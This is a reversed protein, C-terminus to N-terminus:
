WRAETLFDNCNSDTDSGDPYRGTSTGTAAPDIVISWLDFASGPAPAYCGSLRAGSGAQYGEAAWPDVLAGYNLSDAVVGSADRLVM